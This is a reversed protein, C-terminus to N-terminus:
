PQYHPNEIAKKLQRMNLFPLIFFATLCLYQPITYYIDRGNLAQDVYILFYHRLPFLNVLSQMFSYMANVPFSFGSASFALMGWICSFSLGLRLTPFCGIMFVGLAQSAIILFLLAFIMPVIHHVPFEMFGYLLIFILLGTIFFVLTQPIIKGAVCKIISGNGMRLWDQATQEKIEIGISYVTICMILLAMIGPLILNNLYVSYNLWPNGIPRADILIPQVQAMIRADTYGKTRGIQLGMAGSALTSVTKMDRFLISGAILFSNNTYFSIIPEKGTAADTMFNVPIYYIGYIDGRQMAKRADEFNAFQSVIASTQFADLQRALNRSMSSNDMDVLAIPLNAPLGNYILSIFFGASLLPAVLICFWYIKGKLLRRIERNIVRYISKM